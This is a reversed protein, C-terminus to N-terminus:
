GCCQFVCRRSLWTCGRWLPCQILLDTFLLCSHWRTHINQDQGKSEKLQMNVGWLLALTRRDAETYSAGALVCEGSTERGGTLGTCSSCGTPATPALDWGGLTVSQGQLSHSGTFVRQFIPWLVKHKTTLHPHPNGSVLHLICYFLCPGIYKAHVGGPRYDSTKRQTCLAEAHMNAM